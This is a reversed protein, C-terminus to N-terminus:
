STGRVVARCHLTHRRILDHVELPAYEDRLQSLTDAKVADPRPRIFDTLNRARDGTALGYVRQALVHASLITRWLDGDIPSPPSGEEIGDVDLCAISFEAFALIMASRPAGDWEGFRGTYFRGSAFGEFATRVDAADVPDSFHREYLARQLTSLERLAPPDISTLPDSTGNRGVDAFARERIRRAVGEYVVGLTELFAPDPDAGTVERILVPNTAHDLDFFFRVHRRERENRISAIHALRADLAASNELRRAPMAKPTGSGPGRVTM